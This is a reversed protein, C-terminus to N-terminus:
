KQQQQQKSIKKSKKALKALDEQERKMARKKRVLSERQLKEQLIKNRFSYRNLSENIWDLDCPLASANTVAASAVTGVTSVTSLGVGGCAGLESESIDHSIPHSVIPSLPHNQCPSLKRADLPAIGLEQMSLTLADDGEQQEEASEKEEEEEESTNNKINNSKAAPTPMAFDILPTSSASPDEGGIAPSFSTPSLTSNDRQEASPPPPPPKVPRSLRAFSRSGITTMEFMEESQKQHQKNVLEHLLKKAPSNRRSERERQLMLDTAEKFKKNVSASLEDFNPSFCRGSPSQILTKVKTQSHSANNSQLKKRPTVAAQSFNVTNVVVADTGGVAGVAEHRNNRNNRQYGPPPTDPPSHSGKPDSSTSHSCGASSSAGSAAAAASVASYSTSPQPSSSPPAPRPPRGQQFRRRQLHALFRRCACILHLIRRRKRVLKKVIWASFSLVM